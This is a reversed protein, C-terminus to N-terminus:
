ESAREAPRSRRSRSHPQSAGAVRRPRRLAGRLRRVLFRISARTFLMAGGAIAAVISTVPLITEPSLYALLVTPAGM